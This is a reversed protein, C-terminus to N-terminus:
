NFLPAESWQYFPSLLSNLDYTVTSILHSLECTHGPGFLHEIFLCKHINTCTGYPLHQWTNWILTDLRPFAESIGATLRLEIKAELEKIRSWAEMQLPNEIRKLPDSSIFPASTMESTVVPYLQHFYRNGWGEIWLCKLLLCSSDTYLSVRLLCVGWPFPRWKRKKPAPDGTKHATSTKLLLGQEMVWSSAMDGIVQSLSSYNFDKREPSWTSTDPLLSLNCVTVERHSGASQDTELNAWAKLTSGPRVLQSGSDIM